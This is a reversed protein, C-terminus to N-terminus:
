DRDDVAVLHAAALDLARRAADPHGTLAHGFAVQKAALSRLRAPADTAEILPAAHEVAAPGHGASSLALMSRRVHTYHRMAAWDSRASWEATRDIWYLAAAADGSEESMWSLTEALRTQMRGLDERVQGAADHRVADIVAVQGMLASVLRRPPLSRAASRLGAFTARLDAVLDPSPRLAGVAAAMGPLAAVTGVGVAALFQRRSLVLSDARGPLAVVIAESDADGGSPDSLLALTGGTRYVVDFAEALWPRLARRGSEVQSVLSKACGIRAAAEAQSLGRSLRLSRLLGGLNATDGM